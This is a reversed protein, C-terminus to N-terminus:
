QRMYSLLNLDIRRSLAMIKTLSVLFSHDEERKKPANILTKRSNLRM